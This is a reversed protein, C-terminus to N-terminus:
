NQKDLIELRKDISNIYRLDGVLIKYKQLFKAEKVLSNLTTQAKEYSMSDIKYRAGYLKYAENIEAETSELIDAKLTGELYSTVIFTRMVSYEVSKATPKDYFGSVKAEYAMVERAVFTSFMNAKAEQIFEPPLNGGSQRLAQNFSEEFSALPISVDEIVVCPDANFSYSMDYKKEADAVIRKYEDRMREQAITYEIETAVDAYELNRTPALSKIRAQERQWYAMKDAENVKLIDEDLIERAYLQAIQRDVELKAKSLVEENKDYGALVAKNYLLEQEIIQNAFNWREIDNTIFIPIAEDAFGRATTYNSVESMYDFKTIEKILNGDHDKIRIVWDESYLSTFLTFFLLVSIFIRMKHLERLFNFILIMM